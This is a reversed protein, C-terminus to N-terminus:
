RERLETDQGGSILHELGRSFDVPRTAAAASAAQSARGADLGSGILGAETGFAGAIKERM